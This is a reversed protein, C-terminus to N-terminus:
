CTSAPHHNQRHCSSLLIIFSLSLSLADAISKNRLLRASNRVADLWPWLTSDPDRHDSTWKETTAINFNGVPQGSPLFRVEPDSGLNGVLIVKNVSAM